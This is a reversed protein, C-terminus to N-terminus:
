FFNAPYRQSNFAWVASNLTVTGAGANYIQVSITGPTATPVATIILGAAAGAAAPVLPFILDGLVTSAAIGSTASGLTATVTGQYKSGSTIAGPNVTAYSIETLPAIEASQRQNFAM